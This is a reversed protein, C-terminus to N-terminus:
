FTLTTLVGVTFILAMGDTERLPVGVTLTPEIGATFRAPVGATFAFTVKGDFWATVAVAPGNVLIPRRGLSCTFRIGPMGTPQWVVHPWTFASPLIEQKSM